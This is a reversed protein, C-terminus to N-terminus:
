LISLPQALNQLRHRSGGTANEEQLRMRVLFGGAGTCYGKRCLGHRRPGFYFMRHVGAARGEVRGEVKFGSGASLLSASGPLRQAVTLARGLRSPWGRGPSPANKERIGEPLQMRGQRPRSGRGWRLHTRPTEEKTQGQELQSSAGGQGRSLM